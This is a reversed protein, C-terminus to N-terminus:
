MQGPHEGKQRWKTLFDQDESSLPKPQLWSDDQPTNEPTECNGDKSCYRPKSKGYNSDFYEYHYAQYYERGQEDVLIEKDRGTEQLFQRRRYRLFLREWGKQFDNNLFADSTVYQRMADIMEQQTKIKNFNKLHIVPLDEFLDYSAPDREEIVPIVGMLILEYTRYCDWGMGTPSAGFKFNSMDAYIQEVPLKETEQHCSSSRRKGDETTTAAEAEDSETTNACLIPWLHKRNPRRLGFHVFTDKRFNFNDWDISTWRSKDLFPNTYNNLEMYPILYKEQPHQYSFGLPLPKFKPERKKYLPNTGYWRLLLPDKKLYQDGYSPSNGDTGTTTMLFPHKMHPRVLTWFYKMIKFHNEVAFITGPLLCPIMKENFVTHHYVLHDVNLEYHVLAVDALDRGDQTNILQRDDQDLSIAVTSVCCTDKCIRRYPLWPASKFVRARSYSSYSNRKAKPGTKPYEDLMTRIESALEYYRYHRRPKPPDTTTPEIEVESEVTPPENQDRSDTSVEGTEIVEFNVLDLNDSDIWVRQFSGSLFFVFSSCWMFLMLTSPRSTSRGLPTNHVTGGLRPSAM